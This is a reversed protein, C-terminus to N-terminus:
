EKTNHSVASPRIDYIKRFQKSVADFLQVAISNGVKHPDIVQNIDSKSSPLSAPYTTFTDIGSVDANDETLRKFIAKVKNRNEKCIILPVFGRAGRSFSAGVPEVTRVTPREIKSPEPPERAYQNDCFESALTFPPDDVVDDKVLLHHARVLPRNISPVIDNLANGDRRYQDSSVPAYSDPHLREYPVDQIGFYLEADTVEPSIRRLNSRYESIDTGARYGSDMRSYIPIPEQELTTSPADTNSIRTDRFATHVTSGPASTCQPANEPSANQIDLAQEINPASSVPANLSHGKTRVHKQSHAVKDQSPLTGFNQMYNDAKVLVKRQRRMTQESSASVLVDVATNTPLSFTETSPSAREELFKHVPLSENDEAVNLFQLDQSSTGRESISALAEQDSSFQYESITKTEHHAECLPRKPGRKICRANQEAEIESIDETYFDSRRDVLTILEADYSISSEKPKAAFLSQQRLSCLEFYLARRHLISFFLLKELLFLVVGYNFTLLFRSGVYNPDFFTSRFAPFPICQDYICCPSKKSIVELRETSEEVIDATISGNGLMANYIDSASFESRGLRSLFSSGLLVPDIASDVRQEDFIWGELLRAQLRSPHTKEQISAEKRQSGRVGDYPRELDYVPRAIYQDFFAIVPCKQTSASYPNCFTNCYNLFLLLLSDNLACAIYGIESRTELMQLITATVSAMGEVFCAVDTTKQSLSIYSDIVRKIKRRQFIQEIQRLIGNNLLELIDSQCDRSFEQFLTSFSYKSDIGTTMERLRNRASETIAFQLACAYHDFHNISNRPNSDYESVLFSCFAVACVQPQFVSQLLPRCPAVPVAVSNLYDINQKYVKRSNYQIGQELMAYNSIHIHQDSAQNDQATATEKQAVLSYAPLVNGVYYLLCHRCICSNTLFNKEQSYEANFNFAGRLEVITVQPLDRCLRQVMDKVYRDLSLHFVLRLSSVAFINLGSFDSNTGNEYADKLTIGWAATTNLFAKLEQFLSQDYRGYVPHSGHPTSALNSSGQGPQEVIFSFCLRSFCNHFVSIACTEIYLGSHLKSSCLFVTAWAPNETKPNFNDADNM